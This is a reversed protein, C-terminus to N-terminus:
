MEIASRVRVQRTYYAHRVADVMFHDIPGARADAAFYISTFAPVQWMARQFPRARLARGCCAFIIVIHPAGFHVQVLNNWAVNQLEAIVPDGDFDRPRVNKWITRDHVITFVLDFSSRVVGGYDIAVDAIAPEHNELLVNSRTAADHLTVGDLVLATSFSRLGARHKPNLDDLGALGRGIASISLSAAALVGRVANSLSLVRKAHLGEGVALRVLDQVEAANFRPRDNDTGAADNHSDSTSANARPM